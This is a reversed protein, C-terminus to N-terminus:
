SGSRSLSEDFFRYKSACFGWVRDEVDAVYEEDSKRGQAEVEQRFTELNDYIERQSIGEGKLELVLAVLDYTEPDRKQDMVSRMRELISM